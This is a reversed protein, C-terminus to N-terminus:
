DSRVEEVTDPDTLRLHCGIQILDAERQGILLSYVTPNSLYIIVINVVEHEWATRTHDPHEHTDVRQLM